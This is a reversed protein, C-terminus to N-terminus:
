IGRALRQMISSISDPDYALLEMARSSDLSVDAPRLRTVAEGADSRSSFQIRNESLRFARAVERALAMRSLREKGGVHFLGGIGDRIAREVVRCLDDIGVPTRFEDTFFAGRGQRISDLTWDMVGPRHPNPPALILASRIITVLGAYNPSSVVAEAAAKTSGYVQIPCPADVEKYPSGKAGGFVLDTSLQIFQPPSDLCEAARFLHETGGVNVETALGPSDQCEATSTLAATHVIVDPKSNTVAAEVSRPNTLELNIQEVPISQEDLRSRHGAAIVRYGRTTLHHCLHRGLVGSAGTVLVVPKV